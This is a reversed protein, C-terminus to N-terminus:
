QLAAAPSLANRKTSHAATNAYWLIPLLEEGALTSAKGLGEASVHERKHTEYISQAALCPL